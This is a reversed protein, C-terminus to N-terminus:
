QTEEEQLCRAEADLAIHDRAGVPPLGRKDVLQNILEHRRKHQRKTLAGPPRPQLLRPHRLPPAPAEEQRGPLRVHKFFERYRGYGNPRECCGVDNTPHALTYALAQETRYAKGYM